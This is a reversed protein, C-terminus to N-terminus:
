ITCYMKTHFFCNQAWILCPLFSFPPYLVGLLKPVDSVHSKYLVAFLSCSGACFDRLIQVNDIGPLDKKSEESFLSM